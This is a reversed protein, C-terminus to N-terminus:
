LESRDPQIWTTAQWCPLGQELNGFERAQARRTFRNLWKGLLAAGVAVPVALWWREDQEILKHGFNELFLYTLFAAPGGATVLQRALRQARRRPAPSLGQEEGRAVCDFCQEAVSAWRESGSHRLFALEVRAEDWKGQMRLSCALLSRCTARLGSPGATRRFCEEAAAYDGQHYQAVGLAAEARLDGPAQDLARAFAGAAQANARAFLHAVGLHWWVGPLLPEAKAAAQLTARASKLRGITLQARGLQLLAEGERGYERAERRYDSLRAHDADAFSAVFHTYPDVIAEPALALAAKVQGWYEETRADFSQAPRERLLNLERWEQRQRWVQQRDPPSEEKALPKPPPPLWAETVLLEGFGSPRLDTLFSRAQSLDPKEPEQPEEFSVEESAEEEPELTLTELQTM